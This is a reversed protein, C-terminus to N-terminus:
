ISWGEPLTLKQGPYILNPNNGIVKKNLNYLKKWNSGKGSAKKAINWLCDGKKVIYTYTKKKAVATSNTRSKSTTALEKNKTTKVLKVGYPKYQKLNLEYYIDAEEGAKYTWNFNNIVFYIDINKDLGTTVFRGVKNNKNETQWIENIFNVCTIPKIQTYFPSETGPFFSEINVEYLGVDGKRTAKGQGLIDIDENEASRNFSIEEPNVPLVLEKGNFQIKFYVAM